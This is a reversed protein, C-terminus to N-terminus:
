SSKHGSGGGAGGAAAQRADQEAQHEMADSQEVAQLGGPAVVCM